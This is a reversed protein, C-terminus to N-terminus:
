YNFKKIWRKLDKQSKIASDYNKWRGISSKYLPNIVQSYSPTSIKNRNKATIFFKEIKREYKLDLYDLLLNIHKKFDNVINEYKIMRYDINLEEEYFNFLDFVKNYFYITDDWKLFNVMADNIKFLSFFCSTVVDCPHRM